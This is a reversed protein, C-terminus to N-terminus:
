FSFGLGIKLEDYEWDDDLGLSSSVSLSDSISYSTSINAGTFLGPHNDYYEFDISPVISIGAMALKTYSISSSWKEAEVKYAASTSIGMDAYAASCLGGMLAAALIIKKM